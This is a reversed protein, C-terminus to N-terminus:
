NWKVHEDWVKFSKIGWQGYNIHKDSQHHETSFRSELGSISRSKRLIYQFETDPKFPLSKAYKWFPTDYKSGCQYHWLIFTIVM